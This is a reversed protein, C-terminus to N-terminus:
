EVVVVSKHYQHRRTMAWLDRIDSIRLFKRYLTPRDVKFSSSPYNRILCKVRLDTCGSRIYTPPKVDFPWPPTSRQPAYPPPYQTYGRQYFDLLLMARLKKQNVYIIRSEVMRQFSRIRSLPNDRIGALGQYRIYPLRTQKLAPSQVNHVINPYPRGSRSVHQMNEMQHLTPM